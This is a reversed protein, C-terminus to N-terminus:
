KDDFTVTSEAGFKRYNRFEIRNRSCFSTGRQCSLLEATVPLLYTNTATLRVPSYEVATEITDFSFRQPMNRGQMEIRLVRATERDIWVTGRYAPYYLQSTAQIRWRSRERPVEYRFMVTARGAITDSGSRRFTARGPTFIEELITQFEGTSSAGGGIDMMSGKAPKGGIQINKYSEKGDEYTLDATVVDLPDWGRKPNNTQYRTTTQKCFFNPLTAAFSGTEERAKVLLPDEEEPKEEAPPAVAPSPAPTASPTETAAPAAAPAPEPASAPRKRAAPIGRRLVPRGPDDDDPAADPPRVTTAAEVPPESEAPAAEAPSPAAPPDNRRMRPRDDDGSPRPQAPAPAAVGPELGPLDWQRAAAARDAPSGTKEFRIASAIFFQQEDATSDVSINDGPQWTAPDATLGDKLFTTQDTVRFWVIRHDDAEIVFQRGAYRRLIGNTTEVVQQQAGRRADPQRRTRPPRDSPDQGPFRPGPLQAFLCVACIPLAAWAIKM